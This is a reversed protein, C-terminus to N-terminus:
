AGFRPGCPGIALWTLAAGCTTVMQLLATLVLDDPLFPLMTADGSVRFESCTSDGRKLEPFRAAAPLAPGRDTAYSRHRLFLWGGTFAV